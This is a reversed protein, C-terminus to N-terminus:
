SLWGPSSIPQDHVEERTLQVMSETFRIACNTQKVLLL